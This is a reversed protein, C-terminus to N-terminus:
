DGILFLTREIIAREVPHERWLGSVFENNEAWCEAREIAESALDSDFGSLARMALFTCSPYSGMVSHKNPGWGGDDNQNKLLWNMTEKIFENEFYDYRKSAILVGAAKYSLGGSLMDSRWENQMWNFIKEIKSDYGYRARHLADVAKWCVPIRSRDAFFRGLGGDKNQNLFLWDIHKELRFKEDPFYSLFNIFHILFGSGAKEMPLAQELIRRTGPDDKCLGCDLLVWAVELQRSLEIHRERMKKLTDFLLFIEQNLLSNNM